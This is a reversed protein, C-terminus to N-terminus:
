KVNVDECENIISNVKILAERVQYCSQDRKLSIEKISLGALFHDKAVILQDKDFKERNRLCTIYKGDLLQKKLRGIRRAISTQCQGTLQSIQFVSCGNELYVTMLHRDKGDLLRLRRRLVDIEARKKIKNAINKRAINSHITKM